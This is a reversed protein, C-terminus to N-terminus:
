DDLGLQRAAEDIARRLQKRIADAGGGVRQVIDEWELGQDRLEQLRREEPSLRRRIEELLDRRVAHWSPSTATDMVEADADM